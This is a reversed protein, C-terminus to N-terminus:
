LVAAFSSTKHEERADYSRKIANWMRLLTFNHFVCTWLTLDVSYKSSEKWLCMNFLVVRRSAVCYCRHNNIHAYAGCLIVDGEITGGNLVPQHFGVRLM